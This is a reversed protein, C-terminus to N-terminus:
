FRYTLGAYGLHASYSPALYSGLNFLRNGWQHSRSTDRLLYESGVPEYQPTAVEQQWDRIRYYDYTYGALMTVNGALPVDLRFNAVHSEHRLSPPAQFAFQHNPAFPTGDWNTVGFGAYDIDLKTLSLTYNATLTVRDPIIQVTGGASGFWTRDDFDATWESGARTWPGLEATAVAGPNQKNNENFELSRQRSDGADWGFSANLALRAAPAYALDVSVQTRASRLLGLQDGATAALSDALARGLLPQVPRVNSDFDDRRYRLTASVSFTARPTLGVTLDVQDRRRDSVDYRRMDPHDNFTFQPNDNDTGAEAPAYWYSQATVRWDYTGGDRDGRLYKARLSLWRKPRARWTARVITESTGAERYERDIDDREVGLGISSNWRRLRWTADIGVTQRDFAYPLGIRKNKFSVTGNVNSADSTAYQWQSAPTENDLDFRRFFARLRVPRLPVISYEASVHTTNIRAKATPRPLTRTALTDVQYAYPVLPEDQELRGYSVTVALRSELPLDVGATVTANHYRNDPPLPRRGYAGILRDWTDFSAGGAPTAYVNRWLLEDVQNAFDSFRYEARAQYRGGDYGVALGVDGTRYDVPEALAINLTRPPRDGIPGYTPRNGTKSRRTYDVSLDVGEARHYRWAVRGTNTQTELGIPRLFSAAYAAVVTDSALVAPADAVTTNLRKFPMVIAEPVELLGPGRVLYPSQAKNSLFHPTECWAADFRWAGVRGAAFRISQDRRSVDAGVLGLFLGRLSLVDLRVASVYVNDPDRLDRYETFKSSNTNNDFLRAASTFYGTTRDAPQTQALVASPAAFLLAWLAVLRTM